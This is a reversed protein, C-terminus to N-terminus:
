EDGGEFIVESARFDVYYSADTNNCGKVGCTLADCGGSSSKSLLEQYKNYCHPCIQTWYTGNEKVEDVYDDFTIRSGNFSIYVMDKM